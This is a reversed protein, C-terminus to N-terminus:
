KIFFMVTSRDNYTIMIQIIINNSQLYCIVSAVGLSHLQVKYAITAKRNNDRLGHDAAQQTILISV